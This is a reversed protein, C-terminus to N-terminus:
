AKWAQAKRAKEAAAAEEEALAALAEELAAERGEEQQGAVEIVRRLRPEAVAGALAAVRAREPAEAESLAVAAAARATLSRRPSELVQWLGDRPVAAERMGASAGSGMARLARVWAGVEREGRALPGLIAGDEEGMAEADHAAKAELIRQRVATATYTTGWPIGMVSVILRIREGSTLRLDVGREQSKSWSAYADVRELDGYAVYRTLGLSRILLGDPGVRLSTPVLSRVLFVAVM